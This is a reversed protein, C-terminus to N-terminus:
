NHLLRKVTAYPLWYNQLQDFRVRKELPTDPSHLISQMLGDSTGNTTYSKLLKAIESCRLLRQFCPIISFYRLIKIPVKDLGAVYRPLFCAPCETLEQNEKREYLVHGDPCCHIVVHELGMKMLMRKTEYTNRTL